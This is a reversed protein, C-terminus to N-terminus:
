EISALITRLFANVSKQEWQGSLRTSAELYDIRAALGRLKAELRVIRAQAEYYEITRRQTRRRYLAFLM